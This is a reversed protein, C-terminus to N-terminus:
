RRRSAVLADIVFVAVAAWVLAFGAWRAAPMPEGFALWGVLFQGIPAITM